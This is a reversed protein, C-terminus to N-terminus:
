RREHTGRLQEDLHDTPNKTVVGDKITYVTTYEEREPMVVISFQGHEEPLAPIIENEIEREMDNLEDGAYSGHMLGAIMRAAQTEPDRLLVYMCDQRCANPLLRELIPGLRNHDYLFSTVFTGRESM